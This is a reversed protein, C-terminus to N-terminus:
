WRFGRRMLAKRRLLWVLTVTSGGLTGGIAAAFLSLALGLDVALGTVLSITPAGITVTFAITRYRM